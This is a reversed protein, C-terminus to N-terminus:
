YFKLYLLNKQKIAFESLFKCARRTLAAKAFSM